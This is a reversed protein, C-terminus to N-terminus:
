QCHFLDPKEQDSDDYEKRKAYPGAALVDALLPDEGPTFRYYFDFEYVTGSKAPRGRNPKAM